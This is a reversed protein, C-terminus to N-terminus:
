RLCMCVCVAAKTSQVVHRISTIRKSEVAMVWIIHIRIQRDIHTHTHIYNKRNNINMNTTRKKRKRCSCCCCRACCFDGCKIQMNKCLLLLLLLLFYGTTSTQMNATVNVIKKAMTSCVYLCVCVCDYCVRGAWGLQHLMDYAYYQMALAHQM